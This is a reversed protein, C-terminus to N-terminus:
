RSKILNIEAFRKYPILPIEFAIVVSGGVFLAWCM